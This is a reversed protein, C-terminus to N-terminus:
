LLASPLFSDADLRVRRANQISRANVVFQAFVGHVLVVQARRAHRLLDAHRRLLDELRQHRAAIARADQDRHM